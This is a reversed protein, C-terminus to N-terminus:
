LSVDNEIDEALDDVREPRLDVGVEHLREDLVLSVDDTVQGHRIEDRVDEVVHEVIDDADEPGTGPQQEDSTM